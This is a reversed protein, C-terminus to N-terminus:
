HYGEDATTKGRFVWYSYGTYALIIPILLLFGVLMFLLSSRPAAAEHITVAGPVAEPYISIGLGALRDIRDSSLGTERSAVLSSGIKIVLRRAQSLVEDRM